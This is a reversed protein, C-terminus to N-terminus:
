TEIHVHLRYHQYTIKEYSTFITRLMDKLNSLKYSSTKTGTSRGSDQALEVLVETAEKMIDQLLGITKPTINITDKSLFDFIFSGPRTFGDKGPKIEDIGREIGLLVGKLSRYDDATFRRSSADPGAFGAEQQLLSEICTEVEKVMAAIDQARIDVSASEACNSELNHAEDFILVADEFDVGLGGRTAPDILFNYPVFLIEAAPPG